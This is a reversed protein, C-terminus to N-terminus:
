GNAKGTFPMQRERRERSQLITHVYCTGAYGIISTMPTKLEHTFDAVFTERKEIEKKLSNIINSEVAEAMKTYAASLLVRIEVAGMGHNQIPICQRVGTFPLGNQQKPCDPETSTSPVLFFILLIAGSLLAVALVTYHYIPHAPASHWFAWASIPSPKWIIHNTPCIWGASRKVLHPGDTLEEPRTGRSPPLRSSGLLRRAGPRCNVTYIALRDNQGVDTIKAIQTQM